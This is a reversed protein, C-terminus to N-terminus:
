SNSYVLGAGNRQAKVLGVRVTEVLDNEAIVSGQVNVTVNSMTAMRNGRGLVESPTEGPGLPIGNVTPRFEVSRPRGLQNFIAEIQDLNATELRALFDTKKELPIGETQTIYEGLELRLQDLSSESERIAAPTGEVFATIAAEKVNDIEDILNRWAERQDVEGKLKALADQVDEMSTVADQNAEYLDVVHDITDSLSDSLEPLVNQSTKETEDNFMGTWSFAWKFARYHIGVHTGATELAGPLEEAQLKADSTATALDGMIELLPSVADVAETLMPILAEGIVVSLEALSDGLRDQAERLDKAKQIEDEDIVEFDKVGNLATRIDDAGMQVLEAASMWGKGFLDARYAAEAVPDNLNNIADNVRLFTEEIDTSGDPGFAIAVGLEEFAPIEDTAAKALRNFIKTMADAEIGLDGTYSVWKSSQELTLDTKNRFDDVSLALDQFDDIAKMAFGAIAGGAAFAMTGANAKISDMAVNGAAKFKNMGGQAEGVKTKFTNFAGQASKLGQDSFETIIPINIAM